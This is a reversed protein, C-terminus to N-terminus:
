INKVVLKKRISTVDSLPETPKLNAPKVDSATTVPFVGTWGDFVCDDVLGADFNCYYVLTQCDAVTLIVLCVLIFLNSM